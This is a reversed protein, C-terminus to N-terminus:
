RAPPDDGFFAGEDKSRHKDLQERIAARDPDSFSPDHSIHFYLGNRVEDPLDTFHKLLEVIENSGGYRNAFFRLTIKLHKRFYLRAAWDDGRHERLAVEMATADPTHDRYSTRPPPDWIPPFAERPREAMFNIAEELQGSRILSEAQYRNRQEPQMWWLLPVWAALAVVVLAILGRTPRAPDTQEVPSWTPRLWRLSVLSAILLVPSALVSFVVTSFQIGSLYADEPSHQLGGMFDMLPAEMLSAAGFVLVDGYLAVVICTPVFPIKWLVSLARAMLAVRWISVFALTRVNAEIAGLPTLFREYPVAYLWAMPSTLWFLGLFALYGHFFRPRETGRSLSMLWFITFLLFANPISVGFGHLLSQWEGPLYKGDYNRALSATLVLAAGIALSWRTSALRHIAARSGCLYKLLTVPSM